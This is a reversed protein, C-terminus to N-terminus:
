EAAHRLETSSVDERFQAEPVARCLRELAAPLNLDNLQRFQGEVRRGFVLFSCGQNALLGIAADRAETKGEYYHPDALRAITDVGVVFTAGPFLAAKDIFRPARTFWVQEEPGFQELRRQMEIYDLPPKDVNVMSIEHDIPAGSIQKAIEAMRRHGVHRPNFAGPFIVRPEARTGEPEPLPHGAVEVDGWLLGRWAAPATQTTRELREPEALPLTQWDVPVGAAEAALRVTLEAVLREEEVRTRHGKILEVSLSSTAGVSQWALHARHPGRKPRDSALSATCALGILADPEVPSSTEATAFRRAREFAVMAMARATPEACFRDPPASLYEVLAASSYPVTAELLSRSGGPVELLRGIASSGGGTIALM